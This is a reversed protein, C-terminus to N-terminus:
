EGMPRPSASRYHPGIPHSSFALPRPQKSTDNCQQGQCPGHCVQSLRQRTVDVGPSRQRRVAGCINENRADNVAIQRLRRKHDGTGARRWRGVRVGPQRLELQNVSRRAANAQIPALLHSLREGDEKRQHRRPVPKASEAIQRKQLPKRGRRTARYGYRREEVPQPQKETSSRTRVLKHVDSHPNGRQDRTRHQGNTPAPRDSGGM